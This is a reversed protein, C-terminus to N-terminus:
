WSGSAGGGSFSGGGFGGFGGGLGFGGSSFLSSDDTHSSEFFSSTRRKFTHEEEERQIECHICVADKTSPNSISVGVLKLSALDGPALSDQDINVMKRGCKECEVVKVIQKFLSITDGINKM